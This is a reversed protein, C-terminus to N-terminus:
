EFEALFTSADCKRAGDKFIKIIDTRIIDIRKDIYRIDFHDFIGIEESHKKLFVLINLLRYNDYSKLIESDYKRLEVIIQAIEDTSINLVAEMYPNISIYM